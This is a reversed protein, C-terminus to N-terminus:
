EDVEEPSSMDEPYYVTLRPVVQVKKGELALYAACYASRAGDLLLARDVEHRKVEPTGPLPALDLVAPSGNPHLRSHALFPKDETMYQMMSAIFGAGLGPRMRELHRAVIRNTLSLRRKPPGMPRTSLSLIHTCGDAVASRFPHFQLIGGDIARSGRFSATGKTALPLWASAMLASRLDAPSSFDSVDFPKLADVDTVMVHLRQKARIIFEYDLPKRKVLVDDFIFDLDMPARRYLVRRFDLFEGTTLDDFYISLPFWTQRMIFYAANVSGSSCSYVADFAEAYGLDELFTLMAASVVGRIGGGEIALGVKFDDDRDGPKSHAARRELLLQRVPHQEAWVQDAM